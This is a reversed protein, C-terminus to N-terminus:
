APPRTAPKMGLRQLLREAALLGSTVAGEVMPAALYDGALVLRGCEIEGQAFRWLANVYGVGFEPVAEEWRHIRHFLVSGDLLFGPGARGLDRLLVDLIAEDSMKLLERSGTGSPYLKVLDQGEPPQLADSASQVTATALSRSEARPFLMAHSPAPIRHDVALVTTVNPAYSVAGLFAHQKPNLDAILRGAVSATTACVVGDAHLRRERGDVVAVVEYGGLEQQRISLAPANPLVQLDAAMGEPLRSLGHALTFLRRLKLGLKLLVLLLAQSTRELTTYLFGGLVPELIFEAIEDNLRRRAFDAGSATDLRHARHLAHLDLERWHRLLPWGAGPLALKSNLSILGSSLLLWRPWVRYPRGDRLIAGRQSLPALEAELGLERVLRMTHLYYNTIFGAGAEIQFGGVSDTRVRGGVRSDRELVTVKVGARQLHRAATLGAMGAGVVVVTPPSPGTGAMTV